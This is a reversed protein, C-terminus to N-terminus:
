TKIYPPLEIFISWFAVASVYSLLAADVWVKNESYRYIRDFMYALSIYAFPIGPLLYWIFTKGVSTSAVLFIFALPIPAAYQAERLMYYAALISASFSIPWTLPNYASIFSLGVEPSSTVINSDPNVILTRIQTPGEIGTLFNLLNYLPPPSGLEFRMWHHYAFMRSQLNMFDQLTNGSLFFVIYTATYTLASISLYLPYSRLRDIKGTSLYYIPPLVFIFLVTWKCSLALGAVVYLLPTAWVRRSVVLLYISLASFFTAYIELMSSSSFDIYLRDLSLLLPPLLAVLHNALVRRSVFFIVILTLASFIFGLMVHNMFFIESLGILYKGLPPHEFNIADPSAGHVYSWGAVAYLKDDSFFGRGLLFEEYEELIVGPQFHTSFVSSCRVTFYVLILILLWLWVKRLM